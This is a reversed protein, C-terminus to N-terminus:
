ENTQELKRRVLENVEEESAMERGVGARILAQEALGKFIKERLSPSAVAAKLRERQEGVWRAAQGCGEPLASRIREKLLRAMAPSSGGTSIGVTVDQDKVLAPFLFSCEEKVDVVNVPINQQRCAASISGNVEPDNSAAIVLRAGELDEPRFRRLFIQIKGQQGLKWLSDTVRPAVLRIKPGYELLIEVKRQAVRGGGAVLCDEEELQIFIPFYAMHEDM